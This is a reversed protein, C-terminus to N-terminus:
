AAVKVDPPLDLERALDKIALAPVGPSGGDPRERWRKLIFTEAQPFATVLDDFYRYSDLTAGLKKSMEAPSKKLDERERRWQVIAAGLEDNDMLMLSPLADYGRAAHKYLVPKTKREDRFKYAPHAGLDDYSDPGFRLPGKQGNVAVVIDVVQKFADDPLAKMKKRLDPTYLRAYVAEALSYEQQRNAAILPDFKHAIIAKAIVARDDNNLRTKAM